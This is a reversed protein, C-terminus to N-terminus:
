GRNREMVAGVRSRRSPQAARLAQFLLEAHGDTANALHGLVVVRRAGALHASSNASALPSLAVPQLALPAPNPPRVRRRDARVRRLRRQCRRSPEDPECRVHTPQSHVSRQALPETMQLRPHEHHVRHRGLQAQQEVREDGTLSAHETDFRERGIRQEHVERAAENRADVHEVVVEHPEGFRLEGREFVQDGLMAKRLKAAPAEGANVDVDVRGHRLDVAGLLPRLDARIRSMPTPRAVVREQRTDRLDVSHDARAKAGAVRREAFGIHRRDANPEFPQARCHPGVADHDHADVGCPVAGGQKAGEVLQAHEEDDLAALGLIEDAREGRPLRPAGDVDVGVLAGGSLDGRRHEAAAFPALVADGDAHDGHPRALAVPM